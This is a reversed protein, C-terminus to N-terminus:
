TSLPVIIVSILAFPEVSPVNPPPTSVSVL